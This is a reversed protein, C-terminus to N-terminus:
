APFELHQVGDLLSYKGHSVRSILGLKVMRSLAVKVSQSSAFGFSVMESVTTVGNALCDIIADRTKGPQPNHGSVYVRPRNASDYKYFSTGCGCKCQVKSNPEDPKRKGVDKKRHEYLHHASSAKVELNDPHNNQKNEDLHHVLEGKRLQRGLKQEAVVRHEYAYGRVDALHHGKGVVVLIYGHQTLSRM